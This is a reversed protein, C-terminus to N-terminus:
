WVPFVRYSAVLAQASAPVGVCGSGRGDYMAGVTEMIAQKLPFPVATAAGYGYVGRVQVGTIPRLFTTPWTTSNKISVRPVADHNDVVVNSLAYTYETGDDTVTKISTLSALPAIPLYIKSDQKLEDALRGDKTGQWDDIGGIRPFSDLWYDWTQTIFKRGTWDELMSTASKILNKLIQDDAATDIRLWQKVETVTVPDTTPATVLVLKKM